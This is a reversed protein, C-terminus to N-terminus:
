KIQSLVSTKTDKWVGALQGSRLRRNAAVLVVVDMLFAVIAVPLRLLAQAPSLNRLRKFRVGLAGPYIVWWGGQQVRERIMTRFWDPDRANNEAILEGADMKGSASKLYDRLYTHICHGIQQRRQNNFIDMIRFYAEFVHSANPARIIRQTDSPQTFLHTCMMHKLFGDEVMLGLPMHIRRLMRGRACYLQGTLQAPASQTIQGIALSLRDGLTKRSKFLIHKQPLDTSAEAQPNQILAQVMNKLTDPHTFSIDADMLFVYDAAQNSFQHVFQNWANVKGAERLSEVRWSFRDAPRSTAGTRLAEAAKEDTHDSCGNPVVVIELQDEAHDALEHILTQEFLSQLAMGISEEENWALIGISIIM